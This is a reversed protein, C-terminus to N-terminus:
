FSFIGPKIVGSIVLIIFLFGIRVAWNIQNLKSLIEQQTKLLLVARKNDADLHDLYTVKTPLEDNQWTVDIPKQHHISDELFKEFAAKPSTADIEMGGDIGQYKVTYKM